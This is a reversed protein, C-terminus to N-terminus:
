VKENLFEILAYMQLIAGYNYAFNFTITYNM